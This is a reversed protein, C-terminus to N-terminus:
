SNSKDGLGSWIKEKRLITRYQDAICAANKKGYVKKICEFLYLQILIVLIPWPLCNLHRHVAKLAELATELKHDLSRSIGGIPLGAVIVDEAFYADRYKLDRLLFEYDGAIKFTDDFKGYKEFLGIHHFSGSHVLLFSGRKFRDKIVHWHKGEVYLINGIKDLINSKGYVYEFNNKRAKTLHPILKELVDIDWFFDDAGLFCVWEGQVHNLAKNWAHYIGRDTKSEWYSIHKQYKSIIAQTEDTSAGDIVILEKYPYTQSVISKFLRELTASANLTAVIITITPISTHNSLIM